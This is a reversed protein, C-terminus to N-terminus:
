LRTLCFCLINRVKQPQTRLSCSHNQCRHIIDLYSACIFVTFISEFFLKLLHFMAISNASCHKALKNLIDSVNAICLSVAHFCSSQDDGRTIISFPLLVVFSNGYKKGHIWQIPRRNNLSLNRFQSLCLNRRYQYQCSTVTLCQFQVQAMIIHDDYLILIILPVTKRICQSKPKKLCLFLHIPYQYKRHFIRSKCIFCQLLQKDAFM